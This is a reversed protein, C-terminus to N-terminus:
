RLAAEEHLVVAKRDPQIRHDRDFRDVLFDFRTHPCGEPPHHTFSQQWFFANREATIRATIEKQDDRRILADPVHWHIFPM